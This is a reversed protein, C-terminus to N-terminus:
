TKNKIYDFQIVSTPLLPSVEGKSLLIQKTFSLCGIGKSILQETSTTGVKSIGIYLKAFFELLLNGGSNIDKSIKTSDLLIVFVLM